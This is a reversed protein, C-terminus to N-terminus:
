PNEIWILRKMYRSCNVLKMESVIHLIYILASIWKAFEEGSVFLKHFYSIVYKCFKIAFLIISVNNQKYSRHKSM